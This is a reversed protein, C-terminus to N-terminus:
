REDQEGDVEEYSLLAYNAIGVSDHKGTAAALIESEDVGYDCNVFDDEDLLIEGVEYWTHDDQLAAIRVKLPPFIEMKHREEVDFVKYHLMAYAVIEYDANIEHTAVAAELIQNVSPECKAGPFDNEDLVIDNTKFWSCDPLLVALRVIIYYRTGGNM